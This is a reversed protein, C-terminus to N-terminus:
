PFELPLEVPAEAVVAEVPVEVAAEAPAEVSVQAAKIDELRADRSLKFSELSEGSKISDGFDKGSETTGDPATLIDPFKADKMQDLMAVRAKFVDEIEEATKAKVSKDELAEMQRVFEVVQENTLEQAEVAEAQAKGTSQKAAARAEVPAEVTAAEAPAEVSVQAAKIDELRADRSLKFSELSEGSKISDGFDKGSETTGDPATLIDPFKADKMQDLMAVRAKFVDEIEEATKAKVSKDELAEMQRVFEVVQENTLEQAEVAEAQAEDSPIKEAAAEPKVETSKEAEVAEVPTEAPKEQVDEIPVGAPAAEVTAEAVTEVAAVESAAEVHGVETIGAEGGELASLEQDLTALRVKLAEM